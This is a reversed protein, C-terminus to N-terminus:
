TDGERQSEIWTLVSKTSYLKVRPSVVRPKPFDPRRIVDAACRESIGGLLAAIEMLSRLNQARLTTLTAAQIQEELGRQREAREKARAKKACRRAERFDDTEFPM